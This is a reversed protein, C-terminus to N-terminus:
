SKLVPNLQRTAQAKYQEWRAAPLRLDEKMQPRTDKYFPVEAWGIEIKIELMDSLYNTEFAVGGPPVSPILNIVKGPVEIEIEAESEPDIHRFVPLRNAFEPLNQRGEDSLALTLIKTNKDYRIARVDSIYHLARTSKNALHVMLSMKKAVPTLSKISIALDDPKVNNYTM